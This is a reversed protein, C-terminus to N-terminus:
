QGQGRLAQLTLVAQGRGSEFPSSRLVIKTAVWPPRESQCTSIFRDLDTFVADRITIERSLVSWGDGLSSVAERSDSVNDQFGEQKLLDDLDAPLGSKMEKLKERAAAIADDRKELAEIQTLLVQQTAVVGLKARLQFGGLISLSVGAAFIAISAWVGWERGLDSM